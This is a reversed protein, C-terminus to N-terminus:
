GFVIRKGQREKYLMVKKKKKKKQPQGVPFSL